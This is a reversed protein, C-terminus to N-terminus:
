SKDKKTWKVEQMRKILRKLGQEKRKKMIELMKIRKKKKDSLITPNDREKRFRKLERKQKKSKM